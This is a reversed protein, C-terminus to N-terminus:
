QDRIPLNSANSYSELNKILGPDAVPAKEGSQVGGDITGVGTSATEFSPAATTTGSTGFTGTTSDVNGGLGVGEKANSSM